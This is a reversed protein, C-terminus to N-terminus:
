GMQLVVLNRRIGTDSASNSLTVTQLHDFLVPASWHLWKLLPVSRELLASSAPWELYVHGANPKLLAAIAAQYLPKEALSGTKETTLAAQIAEVSTAFLEYNGFTTHAAALKANLSPLTAPEASSDTSAKAPSQLRTWTAVPQGAVTVDAVTYGQQKALEDFQSLATTLEPTREAVFLWDPRDPSHSPVLALGYEGTVWRTATDFLSMHTQESFVQQPQKLFNLLAPYSNLETELSPWLTTLDKGMLSVLSSQPLRALISSQSDLTPNFAPIDQEPAAFLLTDAVFNQKQSRMAIALKDYRVTPLGDPSTTSQGGIKAWAGLEPLNMFVWGWQQNSLTKIATQYSATSSLSLDPAQANNIADRLVKPHNAILVYRDGINATAITQFPSRAPTTPTSLQGVTDFEAQYTLNVGRYAEVELSESLVARKQWLKQLFSQSQELNETTLILLYGPQVGNDPDRDLDTTTVALTIEDGLWPLVDRDYSVGPTGLLTNPASSEANILTAWAQALQRPSALGSAVFPAQKPVFVTTTPIAATLNSIQPLRATSQAGSCASIGVSLLALLVMLLFSFAPRKMYFSDLFYDWFIWSLKETSFSARLWLLM